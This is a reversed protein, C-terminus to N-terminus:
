SIIASMLFSSWWMSYTLFEAIQSTLNVTTIKEIWNLKITSPPSSILVIIDERIEYSFIWLTYYRYHIRNYVVDLFVHYNLIDTSHPEWGTFFCIGVYKINQIWPAVKIIVFQWLQKFQKVIVINKIVTFPQLHSM